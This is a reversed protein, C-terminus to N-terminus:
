KSKWLIRSVVELYVIFYRLRLFGQFVRDASGNLRECVWKCEWLGVAPKYAAQFLDEISRTVLIPYRGDDTCGFVAVISEEQRSERDIGAVVEPKELRLKLSPVVPQMERLPDVLLKPM